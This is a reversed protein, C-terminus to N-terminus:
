KPQEEKPEEEKPKPDSYRVCDKNQCTGDERLPKLCRNCRKKIAM